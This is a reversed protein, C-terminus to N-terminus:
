EAEGDMRLQPTDIDGIDEPPALEQSAPRLHAVADSFEKFLDIKEEYWDELSPKPFRLFAFGPRDLRKNEQGHVFIAYLPNNNPVDPPAMEPFLFKAKNRLAYFERAFSPRVTEDWHDVKCQTFWVRGCKVLTHNWPHPPSSNKGWVIETEVGALDKAEERMAGEILARRISWVTNELESPQLHLLSRCAIVSEPYSSVVRRLMRHMYERPVNEWFMTRLENGDGSM